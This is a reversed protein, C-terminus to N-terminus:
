TVSFFNVSVCVIHLVFDTLFRAAPPNARFSKSYYSTVEADLASM